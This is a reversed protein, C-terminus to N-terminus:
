DACLLGMPPVPLPVVSRPPIRVTDLLDRGFFACIRATRERDTPNEVILGERDNELFVNCPLEGLAFSRVGHLVAIEKEEGVARIVSYNSEPCEPRFDGHLLIPRNETWYALFAGLLEKQEETSKELLVSIQPVSFLINLLQRACLRVPEEPAWVLMDSHVAVPYHLLRLDVTGVRHTVADYACDGVRLMNGFRNIAPGVYNQRYEYLLGPKIAGLEEEIETLLTRVADGVTECDMAAPDFPASEPPAQFSDIFDFKYGDIDYETLFRRYHGILFARIEPRRIDLVGAQMIGEMVYLFKDRFKEFLPSATGVFPVAFWVVLKMGLRHVGDAFAKFDPFKDPSPQWEGCLSYNNTTEGAFQWGDDLIVTRFGLESAIKLERLLRESEPAQMFCYWSSYLPDEAAAPPDPIGYGAAKWSGYVEGIARYYPVPRADIRLETEYSSLADTPQAFMTVAYELPKSRTFETACFRISVPTVPDSVSVTERNREGEGITALVPAGFQFCSSSVTAGFWQHVRKNFGSSPTWVSLVDRLEEEWSIRVPAPQKKEPLEIRVRFLYIDEEPSALPTVKVEAQGDECTIVFPFEKKM